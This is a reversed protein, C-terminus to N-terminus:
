STKVGFHIVENFYDATCQTVDTLHRTMDVGLGTLMGLEYEDKKGM